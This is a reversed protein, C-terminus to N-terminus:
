TYFRLRFKKNDGDHADSAAAASNNSYATRMNAIWQGLKFGDECVYKAKVDLNGYTEYYEKAHNYANQWNLEVANEWRMGIGNLRDIQAETLNGPVKGAYVRRQTNLWMGLTLGSDTVYRKPVELNGHEDFYAKAAQFYIEWTSSLSRELSEFLRRCDATEDIIEFSDVEIKNADGHNLYYSVALNIEDQITSISYLNDFNNVVDFIIPSHKKGASLARGIQQKYIIPSVTPRFLIVGDIDNVHVGENLMDICFLLRLHNSDDAKFDLFDQSAMPDESYVKYMHMDGDLKGFWEGAHEAMEDMHARSSCFVIYKGARNDMHKEFVKDLGEAMELAKRLRNLEQRNKDRIGTNVIRDVRDEYKRFEEQYGYVSLVYKPPALIGRVIAEGLTMYSAINGEFLEEAMDRQNDLYRIHTASLGLIKVAPYAKCLRDFGESWKEAGLRHLEDCIIMDPTLAKIEEESMLMLKAYTIFTINDLVAGGERKLNELQTKVIYESPTLWIIHKNPNDEALKFGIFSKGTGTPHIIAAKGYSALMAKAANYAELNHKFLKLAM